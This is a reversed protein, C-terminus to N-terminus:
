PPTTQLEFGPGCRDPLGHPRHVFRNGYLDFYQVCIAISTAVDSRKTRSLPEAFRMQFLPMEQDRALYLGTQMRGVLVEAPRPLGVAAAWSELLPPSWEVLSDSQNSFLLGGAWRVKLIGIKAPGLGSNGIGVRLTDRSVDVDSLVKPAVSLEAHRQQQQLSEAALGISADATRKAQMAYYLGSGGTVLAMLLAVVELLVALKEWRTM